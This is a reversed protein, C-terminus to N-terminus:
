SAAEVDADAKACAALYADAWPCRGDFSLPYRVRAIDRGTKPSRVLEVVKLLGGCVLRGRM